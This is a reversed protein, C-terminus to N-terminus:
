CCKVYIFRQNLHRFPRIVFDEMVSLVLVALFLQIRWLDTVSSWFSMRLLAISVIAATCFISSKQFELISVVFPMQVCWLAFWRFLNIRILRSSEALDELLGSQHTFVVMLRPYAVGNAPGLILPSMLFLNGIQVFGWLAGKPNSLIVRPNPRRDSRSESTRPSIPLTDLYHGRRLANRCPAMDKEKKNKKKQGERKSRKKLM